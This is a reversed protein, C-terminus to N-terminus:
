QDPRLTAIPAPGHSDLNSKDSHTSKQSAFNFLARDVAYAKLTAEVKKHSLQSKYEQYDQESYKEGKQEWDALAKCSQLFSIELDNLIEEKSGKKFQLLYKKNHELIASNQGLVNFQIANLSKSSQLSPVSKLDAERLKHFTHTHLKTLRPANNVVLYDVANFDIEYLCDINELFLTEVNSTTLEVMKSNHVYVGHFSNKRDNKIVLEAATLKDAIVHRNYVELVSHPAHLNSLDVVSSNKNPHVVIQAPLKKNKSNYKAIEGVTMHRYLDGNQENLFNLFWHKLM